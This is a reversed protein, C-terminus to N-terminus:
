QNLESVQEENFNYPIIKNFYMFVLIVDCNSLFKIMTYEFFVRSISEPDYFFSFIQSIVELLKNSNIFHM